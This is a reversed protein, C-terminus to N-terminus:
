MPAKILGAERQCNSITSAKLNWWAEMLMEAAQEVNQFNGLRLQKRTSALQSEHHLKVIGDRDKLIPAFTSQAIGRERCVDIQMKGADIEQLVDLKDQLSFQKQKKKTGSSAVNM